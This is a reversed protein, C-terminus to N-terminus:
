KLKFAELMQLLATHKNDSGQIVMGIDLEKARREVIASKRGTIIGAHKGERTWLKLAPGDRVHFAKSEEGSDTYVIRGDSLVGDVDLVLLEIRACKELLSVAM